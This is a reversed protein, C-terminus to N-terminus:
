PHSIITVPKKLAHRVGLEYLVNPNRGSLDFIAMECDVLQQIVDRIIFSSDTIHDVRIAEFEAKECAPSIIHDYVRTFHGKEFPAPDSFPMGIFCKKM